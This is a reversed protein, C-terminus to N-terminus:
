NSGTAVVPAPGGGAEPLEGVWLGYGSTGLLLRGPLVLAAAVDRAAVPLSLPVLAGAAHDYLLAGDGRLVLASWRRDATPLLRAPEAAIERWPSRLDRRLWAGGRGFLAIEDGVRELRGGRFPVATAYPTAGGLHVVADGDTVWLSEGILAASRPAAVRFPVPAFGGARREFLGGAARVVVRGDTVLVQDVRQTGLEELRRWSGERREYLGQETAAYVTAGAAALGLVTPLPSAEGFTRGDDNSVYVGSAPGAHNVAALVEGGARVLAMVRLNTLGRSAPRFSRGGDDSIWIGAGETGLVVRQPRAPHQVIALSSLEPGTARRWTRGDDESRFVGEVTGALLTGDVLVQFAPTRRQALGEKHRTWKEGWGEGRYVWGCTSAWVEGRRWPVPTLTFVESDLVMGEFVGRWTSGGDDSRYVRQWTGALVIEPRVPDVYLSSVKEIEPYPGTAELWSAGGDSTTYVGRGTAAYLRGPQGPVLALAYVSRDTPLGGRRPTWTTGLDDSVVVMGGGWVGRLGAWLRGPVNPDFRLTGVVWGQLPLSPSAENWTDGGDESRYVHGASTGALIRDPQRPDIALSRVDGGFLPATAWGAALAPVGAAVASVGTAVMGLGLLLVLSRRM